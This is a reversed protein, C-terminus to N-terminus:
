PNAAPQNFLIEWARGAPRARNRELRDRLVALGRQVAPRAAVADYWRRLSPFEDLTQGQWKHPRIWPFVAMDALSYDGALWPGVRLRRDLVDYIRRAERTYRDIAYPIPEPAYRRFHHAQGLMPGVHAMQFMLWQVVEARQRLAAPLFRWGAKEALYLMIAGSEVLAIPAGDPGDHDVLAPIKNNPSIAAFAPAFQEGKGIHVPRVNYPWDLEELLITIKYGNPTPWFYLDIM